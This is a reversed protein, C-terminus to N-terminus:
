GRYVYQVGEIIPLRRARVHPYTTRRTDQEDHSSQVVRLTFAQRAEAREQLLPQAPSTQINPDAARPSMHGAWEGMCESMSRNTTVRSLTESRSCSPM